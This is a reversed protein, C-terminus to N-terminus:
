LFRRRTGNSNTTDNSTLDATVDPTSPILENISFIILDNIASTFDQVIASQNLSPKKDSDLLAPLLPTSSKITDLIEDLLSAPKNVIEVTLDKTDNLM